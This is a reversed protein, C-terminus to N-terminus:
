DDVYGRPARAEAGPADVKVRVRHWRGDGRRDDPYYGLVYQSRLEDLIRLFVPAIEDARRIPIIEGGSERVARTLLEIQRGYEQSSRWASTMTAGGDDFPSDAERAFRIWYVLASSTRALASAQEMDVVSHTDIGDSLLIVVRRGQREELLQLAVFLSDTLATGGRAETGGLGAALIEKADTIPTRVLLQDSFVLVQAQDLAKMGAIFTAAGATAARIKDGFMSGSADILLVATFPIDGRAFTVLPQEVGEDTITFDAGNLDLVREGDRSVSVYLQRLEVEFDAAIPPPLTSVEATAQGGEADRATVALRHAISQGGLDVRLRWPPQVLTGVVRGDLAFEVEAVEARAVVEAAIEVEGIAYEGERPATITVWIDAGAAPAAAALALALLPVCRAVTV